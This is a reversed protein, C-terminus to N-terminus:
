EMQNQAGFVQSAKVISFHNGRVVHCDVDRMVLKNWGAPGYDSRVGFLWGKAKSAIENDNMAFQKKKQQNVGELMGDQAWIAVFNKLNVEM